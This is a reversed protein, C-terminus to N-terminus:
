ARSDNIMNLLHGLSSHHNRPARLPRMWAMQSNHLCLM